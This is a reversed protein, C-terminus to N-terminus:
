MYSELSKVQWPCIKDDASLKLLCNTGLDPGVNQLARDPDLSHSVRIANKFYRKAFTCNSFM